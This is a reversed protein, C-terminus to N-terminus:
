SFGKWSNKKRIAFVIIVSAAAIVAILMLYISFGLLYNLVINFPQSSPATQNNSIVPLPLERSIYYQSFGTEGTTVVLTGNVLVTQLNFASEETDSGFTYVTYPEVHSGNTLTYFMNLTANMGNFTTIEGNGEGAFILEADYYNNLPTYGYGSVLLAASEIGPVHITVTDYTQKAFGNIQYSFYVTVRNPSSTESSSLIFEFPLSYHRFPTEYAYASENQTMDSIIGGRGNISASSLTANIASANWVNDGFSVTDNNTQFDAFNQLWYVYQGQTGNVQLMVNLQLSAGYPSINVPPTGNYANISYIKAYGAIGTASVQYPVLAGSINEVGYDVIGVPAPPSSHVGFIDVPVLSYGYGVLAESPSIRNDIVIYYNGNEPANASERVATGSSSSLYSTIGSDNFLTFQTQTMLYVSVPVSAQVQLTIEQGRLANVQIYEYYHPPLTFQGGFQYAPQQVQASGLTLTLSVIIIMALGLYKM